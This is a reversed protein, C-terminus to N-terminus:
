KNEDADYYRNVLRTKFSRFIEFDGYQIDYKPLNCTNTLFTPNNNQILAFDPNNIIEIIRNKKKESPM